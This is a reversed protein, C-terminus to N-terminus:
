LVNILTKSKAETEKWESQPNSDKTIGGGVYLFAMQNKLQMCRLNVFLETIKKSDDKKNIIGLYGTYFSRDYQENNKIFDIADLKPLGAVAPTPHLCNVLKFLNLEKPLKGKIDTCIHVLNGAKLNRTKLTKFEIKNKNFVKVMFNTVMQQEKIEKEEWIINGKPKIVQTGALAMTTFNADKLTLLKEPTAGLWTGVKPHHWYYTLSNPYKYLLRKFVDESKIQEAGIYIKRSLVVKELKKQAIELIAKDILKIYDDKELSSKQDFPEHTPASKKYFEDTIIHNEITSTEFPILVSSEEVDFPAFVFGSESLDTTLNLADNKQVIITIDEANPMRFAVFPLRNAKAFQLKNFFKHIAM